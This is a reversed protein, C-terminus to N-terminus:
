ICLLSHLNQITVMECVSLNSMNVIITVALVIVEPINIERTFEQSIMGLDDEEAVQKGSIIVRNNLVKVEINEPNFQDVNLTVEYARDTLKM